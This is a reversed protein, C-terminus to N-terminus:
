AGVGTVSTLAVQTQGINLLPGNAGFTVGSVTGSQANGNADTYTVNQNVLTQAQMNDMTQSLTQIDQVMSLTSTESIMQTPNMPNTPDQHTLQAVLLQLFESSNLSGISQAASTASQQGASSTAASTAASGVPNTIMTM